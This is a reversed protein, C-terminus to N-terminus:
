YLLNKLKPPYLTQTKIIYIKCDLKKEHGLLQAIIVVRLLKRFTKLIHLKDVSPTSVLRCIM